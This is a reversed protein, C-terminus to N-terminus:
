MSTMQRKYIKIARHFFLQQLLPYKFLCFPLKFQFIQLEASFFGWRELHAEEFSKWILTFFWIFCGWMDNDVLKVKLATVCVRKPSMLPSSLHQLLQWCDLYIKETSWVAQVVWSYRARLNTLSLWLCIWFQGEAKNKKGLHTRKQPKLGICKESTQAWTNYSCIPCLNDTMRKRGEARPKFLASLSLTARHPCHM